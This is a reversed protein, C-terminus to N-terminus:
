YAQLKGRRSRTRENIHEYVLHECLSRTLCKKFLDLYLEEATADRGEPVIVRGISGSTNSEDSSNTMVTPAGIKATNDINSQSQQIYRTQPPLDVFRIGCVLIVHRRRYEARQLSSASSPSTCMALDQRSLLLSQVTHYPRSHSRMPFMFRRRPRAPHRGLVTPELFASRPVPLATGFAIMPGTVRIGCSTP